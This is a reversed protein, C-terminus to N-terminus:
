DSKEAKEKAKEGGEKEEEKKKPQPPLIPSQKFAVYASVLKALTQKEDPM